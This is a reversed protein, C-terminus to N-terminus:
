ERVRRTWQGRAKWVGSRSSRGRKESVPDPRAVGPLCNYAPLPRFPSPPTVQVSGRPELDPCSERTPDRFYLRPRRPTHRNSEPEVGGNGKGCRTGADPRSGVSAFWILVLLVASSGGRGSVSGRRPSSCGCGHGSPQRVIGPDADSLCRWPLSVMIVM